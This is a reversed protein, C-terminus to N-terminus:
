EFTVDQEMKEECEFKLYAIYMEVKRCHNDTFQQLKRYYNCSPVTNNLESLYTDLYEKDFFFLEGLEKTVYSKLYSGPGSAGELRFSVEECVRFANFKMGDAELNEIEQATLSQIEDVALQEFM